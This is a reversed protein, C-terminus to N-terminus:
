FVRPKAAWLGQVGSASLPRTDHVHFRPICLRVRFRPICLRVRFGEGGYIVVGFYPAGEVTKKVLLIMDRGYSTISSALEPLYFQSKKFGTSGYISNMIEKIALQRGDLISKKFPDNEAAVLRKVASRTARLESLLRPIVGIRDADTV